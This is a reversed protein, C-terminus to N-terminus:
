LESIKMFMYGRRRYEAIIRPLVAVTASRDRSTLSEDVGDHLLLIEFNSLRKSFRDFLIDAPAGGTDFIGKTWPILALGLRRMMGNIGIRKFGHPARFLKPVEGTQGALINSTSIIDIVASRHDRFTLNRHSSTHNGVDHGEAIMRRILAPNKKAKDGLVFFSAAIGEKKLIDLIQATWPEDPGDDFTLSALKRNRNEIRKRLLWMDLAPIFIYLLYAGFAAALLLAALAIMYIM